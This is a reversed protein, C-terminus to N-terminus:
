EVNASASWFSPIDAKRDFREGLKLCRQRFPLAGVESLMHGSPESRYHALNTRQYMVRRAHYLLDPLQNPPSFNGFRNAIPLCPLCTFRARVSTVPMMLSIAAADESCLRLTPCTFWTTEYIPPAVCSFAAGISCATADDTDKGSCPSCSLSVAANKQRFELAYSRRDFEGLVLAIKRRSRESLKAQTM